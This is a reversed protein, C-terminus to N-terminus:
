PWANKNSSKLRKRKKRKMVGSVKYKIEELKPLNTVVM